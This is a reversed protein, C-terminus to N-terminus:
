AAANGDSQEAAIVFEYFTYFAFANLAMSLPRLLPSFGVLYYKEVFVSFQLAVFLMGCILLWSSRKTDQMMYSSISVGGLVSIMVNQLIMVWFTDSPVDSTALMFFFVLMFPVTAIAMPIYDKLKLLRFVLILVVIRHVSFVLLAWLLTQYGSPIFLANTVASLFMAVPFLWDRRRSIELYLLLLMLPMLPKLVVILPLYTFMESWIEGIAVTFYAITLCLAIKTHSRIPDNM